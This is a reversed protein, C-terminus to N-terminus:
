LLPDIEASLQDLTKEGTLQKGNVDFTPTGELGFDNMAQDRMTQVKNFFDQDSLASNFSEESFGLQFAVSKVADLPKDSLGWTDQTKFYTAIVTDAAAVATPSYVAPTAAATPAGDLPASAAGAAPV